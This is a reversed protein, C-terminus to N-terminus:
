RSGAAPRAASGRSASTPRMRMRAWRQTLGSRPDHWGTRTVVVFVLARGQEGFAQTAAALWEQDADQVPTLDGPRTIWVLPLIQPGLRATMASVVDVRLAHDTPAEPVVAHVASAGGPIGVHLRTPYPPRRESLAHDYVARRLVKQMRVSLPAQLGSQVPSEAGSEESSEM